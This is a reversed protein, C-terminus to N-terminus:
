IMEFFHDNIIEQIDEPVEKQEKLLKEEFNQVIKFDDKGKDM